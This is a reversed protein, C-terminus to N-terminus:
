AQATETNEDNAGGGFWESHLNESRVFSSYLLPEPANAANRAAMGLCRIITHRAVGRKQHKRKAHLLSSVEESVRESNGRNM